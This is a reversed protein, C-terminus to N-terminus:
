AKLWKDFWDFADAQMKKDFKHPGPYASNLSAAWSGYLAIVSLDRGAPRDSLQSPMAIDVPFPVAELARKGALGVVSLAV